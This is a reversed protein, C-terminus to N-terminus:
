TAWSCSDSWSFSHTSSLLHNIHLLVHNFPPQQLTGAAVTASPPQICGAACPTPGTPDPVARSSSSLSTCGLERICMYWADFLKM